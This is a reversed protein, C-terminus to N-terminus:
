KKLFKKVSDEIDSFEKIWIISKDRRFWTLQRKAYHIIDYYLKQQMEEFSIKNQLFRALWRYELGFAELKEWSVGQKNLKEVEALMGEDFREFLRKKIKANLEERPVEIGIELFAYKTDQPYELSEKKPVKGLARCIEIARILRIKNRNDITKARQPDLKSLQTFLEESSKEMLEKRLKENPAVKPIQTNKSIADIWFGTGGCIIPLKGKELIELISKEALSKFHSINFDEQPNAVDILYHRIGDSFYNDLNNEGTQKDRLVKGSGIDLGRYIQRSDASIIEGNFKKALRIAADSKGSATPGCIVIIKPKVKLM